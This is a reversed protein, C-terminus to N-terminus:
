FTVEQLSSVLDINMFASKKTRKKKQKLKGSKMQEGEEEEDGSLDKLGRLFARTSEATGRPVM